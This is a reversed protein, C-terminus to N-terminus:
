DVFALENALLLVQALEQWPTLLRERPGSFDRVSDWRRPEAEAPAGAPPPSAAVVEVNWHYQDSNLEDRIDVMFDLTDGTEVQLSPIEATQRRNHVEHLQLLGHRSSVIGCRIGDGAAEDHVITGRIEVVGAQPATWRRVAAHARDNGPHGGAATLQVWGLEAHPWEAGGQWAGGTFHPLPEFAVRREADVYSGYGYQWDDPETPQPPSAATSSRVFEEAAALQADTPPRQYAWEYLRRIRAPADAAVAGDLRAAVARARSAVFPHNLAFLAQQSVTTESRQPIHLDPNAFDFVRLTSPLFQRDVLGYHTRRRNDDNPTFLEAARGGISLDLEGSVALMTDRWEEFSLRRRNMRWLLRNEPDIESAAM